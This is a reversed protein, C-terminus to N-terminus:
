PKAADSLDREREQKETKARERALRKSHMDVDIELCRRTPYDKMADEFTLFKKIESREYAARMVDEPIEFTGLDLQPDAKM